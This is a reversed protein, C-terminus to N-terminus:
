VPPRRVLETFGEEHCPAEGDLWAHARFGDGPSTVGIVLDRRVDHAADWAQLVMARELCTAKLRRLAGVAGRRASSALAPVRPLRPSILGDSKLTRRTRTLARLAWVAARVTAPDLRRVNM